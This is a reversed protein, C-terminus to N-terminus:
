EYLDYSVPKVIRIGGASASLPASSSRGANFGVGNGSNAVGVLPLGGGAISQHSPLWPEHQQHVNIQRQQEAPQQEQISRYTVTPSQAPSYYDIPERSNQSTHSMKRVPSGYGPIYDSSDSSVQSFSQPFPPPSTVIRLDNQYQASSGFGAAAKPLPTLQDQSYYMNYDTQQQEERRRQEEEDDRYKQQRDKADKTIDGMVFNIEEDQGSLRRRIDQWMDLKSLFIISLVAGVSAPLFEALAAWWYLPVNPAAIAACVSQATDGAAKLQDAASTPSLLGSQASVMAQQGLCELWNIFWTTTPTISLLKQGEFFSFFGYALTTILLWTSFLAPRWQQKLLLSIDRAAQLRRQKASMSKDDHQSDDSVSPISNARRNNRIMFGLTTVHMVVNVFVMASIPYGIFNQSGSASVLCISGFGPYEFQKLVVVPIVLALPLIFSVIIVKTMHTQVFVSRYVTMVHLNAIVVASLLNLILLTYM